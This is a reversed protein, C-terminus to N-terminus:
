YTWKARIEWKGARGNRELKLNDRVKVLGDVGVAMGKGCLLMWAIQWVGTYAGVCVRAVAVVIMALQVYSLAHVFQVFVRVNRRELAVLPIGFGLAFALPYALALVLRKVFSYPPRLGGVFTPVPLITALFLHTLLYLPSITDLSLLTSHQEPHSHWSGHSLRSVRSSASRTHSDHRGLQSVISSRSVSAESYAPGPRLMSTQRHNSVPPPPRPCDQSFPWSPWPFRSPAASLRPDYAAGPWQRTSEHQARAQNPLAPRDAWERNHRRERAARAPPRARPPPILASLASPVLSRWDMADPPM